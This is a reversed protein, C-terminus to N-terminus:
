FGELGPITVTSGQIMAGTLMGGGAGGVKIEHGLNLDLEKARTMDVIAFKDGTDFIFSLPRSDNIKIKLFIHRSVLDFPVTVVSTSPQTTQSAAGTLLLGLVLIALIPNRKM